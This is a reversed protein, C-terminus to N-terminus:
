WVAISVLDFNARTSAPCLFPYHTMNKFDPENKVEDNKFTDQTGARIEQDVAEDAVVEPFLEEQQKSQSSFHHPVKGSCNEDLGKKCFPFVTHFTKM